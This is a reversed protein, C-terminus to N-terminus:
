CLFNGFFKWFRHRFLLKTFHFSNLPLVLIACVGGWEELLGMLPFTMVFPPFAILGWLSRASLLFGCCLLGCCSLSFLFPLSRRHVCVANSPLAMLDWLIPGYCGWISLHLSPFFPMGALPLTLSIQPLPCGFCACILM